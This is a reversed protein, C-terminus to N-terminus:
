VSRRKFFAVPYFIQCGASISGRTGINVLVSGFEVIYFMELDLTISCKKGRVVILHQKQCSILFMRGCTYHLDMTRAFHSSYHHLFQKCVVLFHLAFIDWRTFATALGQDSVQKSVTLYSKWRSGM